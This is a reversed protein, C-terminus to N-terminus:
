EEDKNEESSDPEDTEEAATDGFDELVEGYQYEEAPEDTTEEAPAEPAEPTEAKQVKPATVKRQSISEHTKNRSKVDYHATADSANRRRKAAVRKVILAVIAAVLAVALIISSLSLWFTSQDVSQCGSGSDDGSDTESDDPIVPDSRNLTDNRVFLYLNGEIVDTTQAWVVDTRPKFYDEETDNDKHYKENYEIEEETLTTTHRIFDKDEIYGENNATDFASTFGSEDSSTM